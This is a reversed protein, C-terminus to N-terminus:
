DVLKGPASDTNRLGVIEEYSPNDRVPRASGDFPAVITQM